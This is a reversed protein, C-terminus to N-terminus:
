IQVETTETVWFGIVLRLKEGVGRIWRFRFFAASLYIWCFWYMQYEAM